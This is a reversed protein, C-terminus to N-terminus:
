SDEDKITGSDARYGYAAERVALDSEVLSGLSGALTGLSSGLLALALYQALGVEGGLESELVDQPIFAVACLLSIVFLALYLSLVGIGITLATAANFLVVREREEPSSAREWLGHAFIVVAATALVAFISLGLLRGFGMGDALTWFGVGSLVYATTGVAAVMARSLRIIVRSPENARVMGVLLRLNGRIVANSFRIRGDERVQARGLPSALEVLRQRVRARAADDEREGPPVMEEGLLGAILDLASERVREEVGVAGLAPVSVLGVGETAGAVATVPRGGARLPLKTLCIALDWGKELMQARADQILTASDAMPDKEAEDVEVRWEVEPFRDSLDERLEEAVEEALDHLDPEARLGVSLTRQRTGAGEPAPPTLTETGGEAM